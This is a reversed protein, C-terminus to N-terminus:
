SVRWIRVGGDVRRSLFVVGHRKGWEYSAKAPKSQSGGSVAFFVSDGVNMDKFRYKSSYKKRSSTTPIKVGTEIKM